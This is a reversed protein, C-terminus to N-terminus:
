FRVELGGGAETIGKEGVGVIPIPRVAVNSSPRREPWLFYVAAIAGTCIGIAMAGRGVKQWTNHASAADTVKKCDDSFGDVVPKCNGGAKKIKAAQDEADSGHKASVVLGGIGIGIGVLSVGTLVFGPILTRKQDQPAPAEVTELDRPPKKARPPDQDPDLPARDSTGADGPGPDRPAPLDDHKPPPAADDPPPAPPTAPAGTAPPAPPPEGASQAHGASSFLCAAVLAGAGISVKMQPRM